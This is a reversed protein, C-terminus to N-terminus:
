GAVEVETGCEPCVPRKLGTLSYGCARCVGRPIPQHRDPSAFAAVICAVIFLPVIALTARHAFLAVSLVAIGATPVFVWALASPTSKKRLCVVSIPALFCGAFAGILMGGIPEGMATAAIAGYIAGFLLTLGLVQWFGAPVPELERGSDRVVGQM